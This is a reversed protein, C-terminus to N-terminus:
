NGVPMMSEEEVVTDNIATNNMITEEMNTDNTGNGSVSQFLYNICAVHCFAAVRAEEANETVVSHSSDSLSSPEPTFLHSFSSTSDCNQGEVRLVFVLTLVLCFSFPSSAM